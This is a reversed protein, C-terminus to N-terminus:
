VLWVIFLLSIPNSYQSCVFYVELSSIYSSFPIEYKIIFPIIFWLGKVTIFTSTELWLLLQSLPLPFHLPYHFNELVQDQYYGSSKESVTYNSHNYM